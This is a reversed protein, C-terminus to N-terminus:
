DFTLGVEYKEALEAWELGKSRRETVSVTRAAKAAAIAHFAFLTTWQLIIIGLKKPVVLTMGGFGYLLKKRHRLFSIRLCGSNELPQVLIVEQFGDTKLASFDFFGTDAWVIGMAMQKDGPEWDKFQVEQELGEFLTVRPISDDRQEALAARFEDYEPNSPDGAHILSITIRLRAGFRGELRNPKVTSKALAKSRQGNVSRSLAVLFGSGVSWAFTAMGPPHKAKGVRASASARKLSRPNQPKVSYSEVCFDFPRFSFFMNTGGEFALLLSTQQISAHSNGRGFNAIIVEAARALATEREGTAEWTLLSLLVPRLSETANLFLGTFLRVIARFAPIQCKENDSFHALKPLITTFFDPMVASVEKHYYGLIEIAHFFQISRGAPNDFLSLFLSSLQPSVASNTLVEDFFILFLEVEGIIDAVFFQTLVEVACRRISAPALLQGVRAQADGNVLFRMFPAALSFNGRAVVSASALFNLILDPKEHKVLRDSVLPLQTCIFPILSVTYKHGAMVAGIAASVAQFIQDPNDSSFLSALLVRIWDLAMARNYFNKERALDVCRSILGLLAHGNGTQAANMLRPLISHFFFAWNSTNSKKCILLLVDAAAALASIGFSFGAGASLFDALFQSASASNWGQLLM